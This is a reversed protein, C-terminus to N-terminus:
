ELENGPYPAMLCKFRGNLIGQWYTTHTSLDGCKAGITILNCLSANSIMNVTGNSSCYYTKGNIQIYKDVNSCKSGGQPFDDSISLNMITSTAPVEKTLNISYTKYISGTIQIGVKKKTPFNVIDFYQVSPGVYFFYYMSDSWEGGNSIHIYYKGTDEATFYLYKEPKHEYVPYKSPDTTYYYGSNDEYVYYIEIFWNRSGVNRIDVFYEQGATLNVSYWDEDTKSHLGASKMGLSYLQTINTLQSQLTEVNNYPYATTYTNNPEYKDAVTSIAQVNENSQLKEAMQNKDLRIPLQYDIYVDDFSTAANENIATEECAYTPIYTIMTLILIYYLYKKIKM